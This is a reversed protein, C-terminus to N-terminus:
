KSSFSRVRSYDVKVIGANSRVDRNDYPLLATSVIVDGLRQTENDVGFAMGVSIMGTAGTEAMCQISKSASGGYSLPGMETRVAFVRSEGVVGLDHYRAFRGRIRSRTVGFQDGAAALLEREETPTAVFLILDCALENHSDSDMEGRCSWVSPRM